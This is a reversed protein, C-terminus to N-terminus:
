VGRSRTVGKSMLEGWTTDRLVTKGRCEAHSESLVRVVKRGTATYIAVVKAHNEGVLDIAARQYKREGTIPSGFCMPNDFVKVLADAFGRQFSGKWGDESREEFLAFCKGFKKQWNKVLDADCVRQTAWKRGDYYQMHGSKKTTFVNNNHPNSYLLGAFKIAIEYSARTLALQSMVANEMTSRAVRNYESDVDPDYKIQEGNVFVINPLSFVGAAHEDDITSAGDSDGGCAQLEQLENQLEDWKNEIFNDLVTEDFDQKVHHILEENGGYLLGKFQQMSIRSVDEDGRARILVYVKSGGTPENKEGRDTTAIVEECTKRGCKKFTGIKFLPEGTMDSFTAPQGQAGFAECIKLVKGPAMRSDRSATQIYMSMHTDSDHLAIYGIRYADCLGAYIGQVDVVADLPFLVVLRSHNKM